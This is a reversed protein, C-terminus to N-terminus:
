RCTEEFRTLFADIHAAVQGSQQMPFLHGAGLLRHHRAAHPPQVLAVIEDSQAPPCLLDYEGSLALLPVKLPRRPELLGPRERQYALQHAFRQLGVADAQAALSALLDDGESLGYGPALKSFALAKLGHQQALAWQASRRAEGGHRGARANAGLLVLGGVVQPHRLALHLAVIGGLSHGVWVARGTGAAAALRDAEEDIHSATGLLEVRAHSGQLLAALSRGDLLTGPLAVVPLRTV